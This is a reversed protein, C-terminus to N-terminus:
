EELDLTFTFEAGGTPRNKATIRGGHAKVITACVSLGIGMNRRQADGQRDSSGLYGTFLDELRDPAIGCGNDRVTFRVRRDELTVLLELVTMGRAHIVANELLNTLVQGILVADMPISLFDEPITVTVHQEPCRKRFKVLVTDILEELVTETKNLRLEGNDLRTVSLLNEVMGVLWQADDRIGRLLKQRDADSFRDFNELLMASSGYITTLPTRLDHSVARLLNARMKERESDAKLKEAYTIKKTLACTVIAVVLMVVASFFNVPISFNFEFYPFTFAFNVALVSLLSAAVGWRYGSTLVSILFVGLVFFMPILMPTQSIRNTALSCLFCAALIGATLLFDKIQKKL